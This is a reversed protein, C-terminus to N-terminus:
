HPADHRQNFPGRYPALASTVDLQGSPRFGVQPDTSTDLKANVTIYRDAYRTISCSALTRPSLEILNARALRRSAYIGGRDPVRHDPTCQTAQPVAISRTVDIEDASRTPMLSMPSDFWNAM